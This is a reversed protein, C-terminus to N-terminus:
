GIMVRGLGRTMVLSLQGVTVAQDHTYRERAPLPTILWTLVPPM